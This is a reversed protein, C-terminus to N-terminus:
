LLCYGSKVLFHSILLSARHTLANHYFRLKEPEFGVLPIAPILSGVENRPDQRGEPRFHIVCHNVDHSHPQRSPLPGLNVM